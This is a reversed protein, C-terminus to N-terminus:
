FYFDLKRHKIIFKEYTNKIKWYNNIIKHYISKNIIEDNYMGWLFKKNIWGKGNEYNVSCWNKICSNIQLLNKYGIKGVIYGNPRIHINSIEKKIITYRDGKLLSKHIWGQNGNFDNIKRWSEYEDIVELPLNKQIYQLVIPFNESSGLRLNVENSKTSVFRPIKFKSDSGINEAFLNLSFFFIIIFYFFKMTCNLIISKKIKVYMKFYM